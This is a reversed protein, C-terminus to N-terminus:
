APFEDAMKRYLLPSVNTFEKFARILHSQDAYGNDFAVQTMDTFRNHSLQDLASHFQCIRSYLKPTLGVGEGFLRQLTRETVFLEKQLDGLLITGKHQQIKRVAYQLRGDIVIKRSQSLLLIYDDMLRLRDELLPSNLLQEKLNSKRAPGYLSLDIGQDTLEAASYGFLSPLLWPYLFYAIVVVEGATHLQLPKTNQGYLVLPYCKKEGTLIRAPDTLQFTVSPFGTAILPLVAEYFLSNYELVVIHSVIAAIPPPPALTQVKMANKNVPLNTPSNGL